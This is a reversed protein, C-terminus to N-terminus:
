PAAGNFDSIKLGLRRKKSAELVDRWRWAPIANQSAWYQVTTPHQHGLAEALPRIGGFLQIIDTHKM